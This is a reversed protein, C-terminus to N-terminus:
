HNFWNRRRAGDARRDSARLMQSAYIANWREGPTPGAGYRKGLAEAMAHGVDNLPPDVSGCFRNHASYDTQGHRVLYLSLM